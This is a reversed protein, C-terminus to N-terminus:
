ESVGIVSKPVQYANIWSMQAVDTPGIIDDIHVWRGEVFRALALVTLGDMQDEQGAFATNEPDIPKGGPRQPNAKVFVWDGDTRMTEIQFEVPGRMQAEIAPRIADLIAAREPSGKVPEHIDGAFAPANALALLLAAIISRLM